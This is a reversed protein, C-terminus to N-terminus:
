LATTTLCLWLGSNVKRTTPIATLLPSFTALGPKPTPFCAEFEVSYPIGGYNTDYTIYSFDTQRAHLNTGNHPIPDGFKWTPIRGNIPSATVLSVVTMLFSALFAFMSVKPFQM